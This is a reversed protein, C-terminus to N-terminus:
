IYPKIGCETLIDEYRWSVTEAVPGSRVNKFFAEKKAKSPRHIYAAHSRQEEAAKRAKERQDRVEYDNEPVLFVQAGARTHLERGLERRPIESRYGNIEIITKM